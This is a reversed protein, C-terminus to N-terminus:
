RIKVPVKLAAVFDDQKLFTEWASDGKARASDKFGSRIAVQLQAVARGRLGEAEQAAHKPDASHLALSRALNYLVEPGNNPAQEPREPYKAAIVGLVQVAEAADGAALLSQNRLLAVRTYEPSYWQRFDFESKLVRGYVKAAEAHRGDATCTAAIEGRLSDLTERQGAGYQPRTSAAELALGSEIAEAHRGAKVLVAILERQSSAATRACEPDTGALIFDIDDKMIKVLETYNKTREYHEKLVFGPTQSWYHANPLKRRDAVPFTPYCEKALAVADDYRKANHYVGVLNAKNQYLLGKVEAADDPLKVDRAQLIAGVRRYTAIADDTQEARRYADALEDLEQVLERSRNGPEGAALEVLEKQVRVADAYRSREKYFRRLDTLIRKLNPVREASTSKRVVVAVKELCAIAEDYRRAYSLKQAADLADRWTTPDDEGRAATSRELKSKEIRVADNPRGARSYGNAMQDLSKRTRPDDNGYLRTRAALVHELLLVAEIREWGNAARPRFGSLVGYLLCESAKEMCTLTREDDPGFASKSQAVARCYHWRADSRQIQGVYTDGLRIVGAIAVPDNAAFQDRSLKVYELQTDISGKPDWKILADCLANLAALTDPHTPGFKAQRRKYIKPLEEVARRIERPDSSQASSAAHAVESALSIPNDVGHLSEDIKHIKSYLDPLRDLNRTQQCVDINKKLLSYYERSQSTGLGSYLFQTATYATQANPYDGLRVYQDGMLERIECELTKPTSRTFTLAVKAADALAAALTSRSASGLPLTQGAPNVPNAADVGRVVAKLNELAQAAAQTTSSLQESQLSAQASLEAARQPDVKPVEDLGRDALLTVTATVAVLVGGVGCLVVLGARRRRTPPSPPGVPPQPDM